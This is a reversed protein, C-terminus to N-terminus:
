QMRDWYPVGGLREAIFDILLRCRQPLFRNKPYVAYAYMVPIQYEALLPILEGRALEQYVLFTPLCIIGHGKIAMKKLFDGNNAKIKPNVEIRQQKGQKDILQISTEALTSYQLFSHEKLEFPTEPIGFERLYESSACLVHRIPTLRKAQLSSDRLKGIRIALEYGEELLDIHRDSFDIQFALGRHKKAYEDILPSLHMLSFSSPATIKLTGEICTKVGSTQENLATVEDLIKQARKYYLAGAETLSSKRTTRSLLQAGLRAELETLRRSVSSKALNLQESAKGIGGAEIIRVFMAMDELQGM